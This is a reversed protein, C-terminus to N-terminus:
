GIRVLTLLDPRFIDEAVAQLDQPTVADIIDFLEQEELPKGHHLVYEAMDLAVNERLDAGVKIVARLRHKVAALRRQSVPRECLKDLERRVIAACKEFDHHHCGFYVSWAGADRYVDLYSEVTYVLANRERLAMNLLSGAGSAGLLHNLVFFTYRRRDADGYVRNGLAVHLQHTGRDIFQVVPKYAPLPEYSPTREPQATGGPTHKELLRALRDIDVDGSAFFVSRSPKYWRQTFAKAHASGYSRVAAETGLIVHSLAHGGFLAKDFYDFLVENPTDNSAAIEDCIVEVEKEIEAEPFVSNFVMDCLLEVAKPVDTKLVTAHYVTQEKGTFANLEGGVKHLMGNIQRASRRGTGKFSVHEVFHALGEEGPLEDCAGAAIALGCYVVQSESPFTIVRLGNPLTIFRYAM